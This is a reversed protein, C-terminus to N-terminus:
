SNAQLRAKWRPLTPPPAPMKSYDLTHASPAKTAVANMKAYNLSPAGAEAKQAVRKVGGYELRKLGKNALNEAAQSFSAQKQFGRWFALKAEDLHTYYHPDEELHDKAIRDAVYPVKTHETEHKKGEALEKKPYRSDPEGEARSGHLIYRELDKLSPTGM